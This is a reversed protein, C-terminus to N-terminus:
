GKARDGSPTNPPAPRPGSSKEAQAEMGHLFSARAAELKEEDLSNAQLICVTIRNIEIQSFGADALEKEWNKWTSPVNLDVTEWEIKSPELSIVAIYAIRMSAHAAVQALYAPDKENPKFGGAVLVPKAKPEPCMNDFHKMDLVAKCRFVIDGDMRPLVLVEEAPGSIEKGAIKM